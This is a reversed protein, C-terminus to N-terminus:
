DEDPYDYYIVDLTEYYPDTYYNIYSDYAEEILYNRDWYHDTVRTFEQSENIDSRGARQYSIDIEYWGRQAGSFTYYKNDLNSYIHDSDEVLIYRSTITSEPMVVLIDDTHPSIPSGVGLITAPVWVLPPGYGLGITFAKNIVTEIAKGKYRADPLGVYDIEMFVEKMNYGRYTFDDSSTYESIEKPETEYITIKNIKLGEKQRRIVEDKFANYIGIEKSVEYAKEILINYTDNTESINEEYKCIKSNLNDIAEEFNIVIKKAKLDIGDVKYFKYMNDQVVSRDLNYAYVPQFAFLIILSLAVTLVKISRKM